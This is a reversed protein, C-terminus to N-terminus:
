ILDMLYPTVYAEIGTTFTPSGREHEALPVGNICLPKRGLSCLM